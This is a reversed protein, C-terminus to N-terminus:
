ISRGVHECLERSNMLIFAVEESLGERFVRAFAAVVQRGVCLHM